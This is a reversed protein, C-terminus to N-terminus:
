VLREGERHPYPCQKFLWGAAACRRLTKSNSKSSTTTHLRQKNKRVQAPVKDKLTRLVQQRAQRAVVSNQRRRPASGRRRVPRKELARRRAGADLHQARVCGDIRRAKVVVLQGLQLRQEGVIQALM